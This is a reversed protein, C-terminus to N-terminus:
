PQLVPAIQRNPDDPIMLISEVQRSANPTAVFKEENILYTITDARLSNGQQLVYVNGSLVIRGERSFYQAQAATAQMQRAPYRIQVNGRATIVGTIANAQQVDALITVAQQSPNQSGAIRVAGPAIALSLGVVLGLGIQRIAM